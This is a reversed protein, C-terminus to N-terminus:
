TRGAYAKEHIEDDYDSDWLSGLIKQNTEHRSNWLDEPTMSWATKTKEVSDLKYEPM